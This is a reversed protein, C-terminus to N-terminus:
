ITLMLTTIVRGALSESLTMQRPVCATLETGVIEHERNSKNWVPIIDIGANKANVIAQLQAAGQHYFRDGMGFSYKKLKM